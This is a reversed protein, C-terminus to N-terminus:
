CPLAALVATFRVGIGHRGCHPAQQVAGAIELGIGPMGSPLGAPTGQMWSSECRRQLSYPKGSRGRTHTSNLASSATHPSDRSCAMRQSPQGFSYFIAEDHTELAAWGTAGAARRRRDGGCNGTHRVALRNDVLSVGHVAAVVAPRAADGRRNCTWYRPHWIPLRRTDPTDLQRIVVEAADKALRLPRCKTASQLWRFLHAPGAPFLSYAPQIYQLARRCRGSDNSPRRPPGTRELTLRFRGCAKVSTKAPRMEQQLHTPNDSAPLHLPM